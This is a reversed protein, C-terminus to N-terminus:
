PQFPIKDFSPDRHFSYGRSYRLISSLPSNGRGLVAASEIRASRTSTHKMFRGWEIIHYLTQYVDQERKEAQHHEGGDKHKHRKTDFEIVPAAHEVESLHNSLASFAKEGELEPRHDGWASV